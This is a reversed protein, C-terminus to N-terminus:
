SLFRQLVNKTIRSVGDDVIISLTWCLSGAAFVAGGGDTEFYALDAGTDDPNIGKALHCINGPSHPLIKDLEHGSAGGPCREHLSNHGFLDGQQLGTGDFVWHSDDIVRYPAGSQYGSHTYEVGLLTAAPDQRLEWKEEQRCIMTYEDAMEFEALLGCGGLYLLKGGREYVWAKVQRYMEPSWYEPHTNLILVKYDDLPIRGFHLETESYLDYTFKERELWGLLRWEAPAMASELRGAVPDTIQADEPVCNFREPRDFSLPPATVDFPWVGPQTFRKLEQRANVVPQQTLGDQNVYNSRGGFDNYANWTCNSTLVAIEAQPTTPMVIWPFSFFLGSQTQVHFYYLGSRAPAMVRQQHWRSGYGIRNWQVGTQTFDGDPLIQLTVRPGHDDYWGLNRILEKEYGYRWLDLRYPETAHIRFESADGSRVWKPWAYGLLGDSMLRFRYPGDGPVDVEVRKGGYGDRALTVRYQGPPLEAYLGGTADSRTTVTGGPGEFTVVADHIAIDQEDSVYGILM